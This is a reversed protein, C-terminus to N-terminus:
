GLRRKVREVKRGRRRRVWDLREEESRVESEKSELPAAAPMSLTMVAPVPPWREREREAMFPIFDFAM